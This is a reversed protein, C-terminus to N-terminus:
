AAGGNLLEEVHAAHLAKARRPWSRFHREVDKKSFDVPIDFKKVGSRM